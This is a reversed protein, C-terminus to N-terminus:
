SALSCLEASRGNRIRVVREMDLRKVKEFGLGRGGCLACRCSGRGMACDGKRMGGREDHDGVGAEVAEGNEEARESHNQDDEVM